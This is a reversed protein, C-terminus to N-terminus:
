IYIHRSFSVSKDSSDITFGSKTTCKSLKKGVLYLNPMIKAYVKAKLHKQIHKLQVLKWLNANRFSM